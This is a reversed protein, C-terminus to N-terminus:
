ACGCNTNLGGPPCGDPGYFAAEPSESYAAYPDFTDLGSGYPASGFPDM